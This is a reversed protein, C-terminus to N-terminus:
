MLTSNSSIHRKSSASASAWRFVSKCRTALAVSIWSTNKLSCMLTHSGLKQAFM